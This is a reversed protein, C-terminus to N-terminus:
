TRLEELELEDELQLELARREMPRFALYVTALISLGLITWEFVDYIYFYRLFILNEVQAVRTKNIEIRLTYYSYRMYSHVPPPM